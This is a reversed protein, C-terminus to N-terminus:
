TSIVVLKQKSAKLKLTEHGILCLVPPKSTLSLLRCRRKSAQTMWMHYRKSSCTLASDKIVEEDNSGCLTNSPLCTVSILWSVFTLYQMFVVVSPRKSGHVELSENRLARMEWPEWKELSENRLARTEWPERKEVWVHSDTFLALRLAILIWVIWSHTAWGVWWAHILLKIGSFVKLTTLWMLALQNGFQVWTVTSPFSRVSTGTVILSISM